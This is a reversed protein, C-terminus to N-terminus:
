EIIFKGNRSILNEQEISYFYIGPELGNRSIIIKDNGLYNAKRVIKGSLDYIKFLVPNGSKLFEKPIIITTKDHFPNPYNTLSQNDSGPIEHINTIIQKYSQYYM